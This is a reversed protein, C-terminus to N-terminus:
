IVLVDRIGRHPLIWGRHLVGRCTRARWLCVSDILAPLEPPMLQRTTPPARAARVKTPRKRQGKEEAERDV